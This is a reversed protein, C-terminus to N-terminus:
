ATEGTAKAIAANADAVFGMPLPMDFLEAAQQMLALSRLAIDLLEPAAAILRANAQQQEGRGFYGSPFCVPFTGTKAPSAHHAADVVLGTPDAIWPGPTHASM